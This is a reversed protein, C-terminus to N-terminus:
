ATRRRAQASLGNGSQLQRRGFGSSPSSGLRRASVPRGAACLGMGLLMALSFQTMAAVDTDSALDGRDVAATVLNALYRHLSATTTSGASRLTASRASELVSTILFEGQARYESDGAVLRTAFAHLQNLFTDETSGLEDSDVLVTTVADQEIARYLEDKNSFHYNVTPRSVSARRAIENLTTSEYGLTCFADRGARIIHKRTQASRASVVERTGAPYASPSSCLTNEAAVRCM